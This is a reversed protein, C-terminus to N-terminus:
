GIRSEEVDTKSRKMDEAADKNQEENGRAVVSRYM